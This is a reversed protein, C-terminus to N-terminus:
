RTGGHINQYTTKFEPINDLGNCCDQPNHWMYRFTEYAEDDDFCITFKVGHKKCMNWIKEYYYKKEAISYHRAQDAMKRKPNFLYTLDQGTQEKIWRINFTSLRLFGAILTDAKHEAIMDILQWDFYRLPKPTKYGKAYHGDPYKPFLPNVRVAVKFGNDALTEVAQLRESTPEAGPEFVKSVDDFPTTITYQPYTHTPGIADMYEETALLTNKTLILTPYEHQQLLRLLRLTAGYQKETSNFCDTM